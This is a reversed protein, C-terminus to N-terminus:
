YASRYLAEFDQITPKRPNFQATWQSEAERALNPIMAEDVGCDRLSTPLEAFALGNKESFLEIESVM